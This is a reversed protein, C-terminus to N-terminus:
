LFVSSHFFFRRPSGRLLSRTSSGLTYRSSPSILRRRAQLMTPSSAAGHSIGLPSIPDSLGVKTGARSTPRATLSAGKAKAGCRGRVLPTPASLSNRVAGDMPEGYTRNVFRPPTDCAPTVGDYLWWESLPNECMLLIRSANSFPGSIPGQMGQCPVDYLLGTGLLMIVCNEWPGGAILSGCATLQGTSLKRARLSPRLPLSLCLSLAPPCTAGNPENIGWRNFTLVTGDGWRWVGEEERDSLTLWLFASPSVAAQPILAIEAETLVSM